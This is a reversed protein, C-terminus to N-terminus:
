TARSLMGCDLMGTETQQLEGPSMSEAGAFAPFWSPPLNEPVGPVAPKANPDFAQAGAEHPTAIVDIVLGCVAVIVIRGIM